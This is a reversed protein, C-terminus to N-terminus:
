ASRAQRPIPAVRREKMDKVKWEEYKRFSKELQTFVPVPCGLDVVICKEVALLVEKPDPLDFWEGHRRHESYQDHLFREIDHEPPRGRTFAFPRFVIGILTLTEGNMSQISRIRAILRDARGIKTLGSAPSHLFYVCGMDSNLFYSLDSIPSTIPYTRTFHYLPDQM